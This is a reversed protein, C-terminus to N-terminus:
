ENRCSEEEATVKPLSSVCEAKVIITFKTRHNQRIQDKAVTAVSPKLCVHMNTQNKGSGQEVGLFLSIGNKKVELLGEVVMQRKENFMAKDLVEVNSLCEHKMLM